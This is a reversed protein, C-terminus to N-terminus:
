ALSDLMLFLAGGALLVAALRYAVVSFIVWREVDLGLWERARRVHRDRLRQSRALGWVGTTIAAMAVLLDLLTGLVVSMVPEHLVAGGIIAGGRVPLRLRRLWGPSRGVSPDTRFAWDTGRHSATGSERALCPARYFSGAGIARDDSPM